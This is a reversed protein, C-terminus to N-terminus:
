VDVVKPHWVPHCLWVLAAAQTPPAFGFASPGKRTGAVRAPAGVGFATPGLFRVASASHPFYSSGRKKVVCFPARRHYIRVAFNRSYPADALGDKCDVQQVYPLSWLTSTASGSHQVPSINTSM